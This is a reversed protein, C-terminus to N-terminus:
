AARKKPELRQQRFWKTSSTVTLVFPPNAVHTSLLVAEELHGTEHKQMFGRTTESGHVFLMLTERVEDECGIM